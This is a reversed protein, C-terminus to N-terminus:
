SVSFVYDTRKNRGFAGYSNCTFILFMDGVDKPIPISDEPLV